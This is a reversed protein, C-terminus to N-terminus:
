EFLVRITKQGANMTSEAQWRTRSIAYQAVLVIRRAPSEVDHLRQTVAAEFRNWFDRLVQVEAEIAAGAFGRAGAAYM